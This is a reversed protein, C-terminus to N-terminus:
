LHINKLLNVADVGKELEEQRKNVRVLEEELRSLDVFLRTLRNRCTHISNKDDVNKRTKRLNKEIKTYKSIERNTSHLKFLLSDHYKTTDQRCTKNINSSM